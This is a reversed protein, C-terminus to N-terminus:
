DLIIRSGTQNSQFAACIIRMCEVGIDFSIPSQLDREAMLREIHDIEPAFDDPRTKAILQEEPSDDHKGFIVADQNSRYNVYWEIFGESGQIRVCKQPPATIVDQIITGTLGGESQVGLFASQDYFVDKRNSFNMVASVEQIKGQGVIKAFHQWIAISHSHEGCAGGGRESFGLYSEEPGSLWPHAEFIGGWHEIWRVHMSLAEGLVGDLILEEAIKTNKTLNHNYGVLAVVKTKSLTSQFERLGNLGPQCLPKELLIIKPRIATLCWTALELHTDPPTAIVVLDYESGVSPMVPLLEIKEDWKGYRSPFIEHKTRKLALSDNDYIAVAWNKKRCGHALHNGLSGAGMILVDTM